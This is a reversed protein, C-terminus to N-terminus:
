AFLGNRFNIIMESQFWCNRDYGYSGSLLLLFHTQSLLVLIPCLLVNSRQLYSIVTSLASIVQTQIEDWSFIQHGGKVGRNRHLQFLVFIFYVSIRFTSIVLMQCSFLTLWKFYVLDNDKIELKRCGPLYGAIVKEWRYKKIIIIVDRTDGDDGYISFLVVKYFTLAPPELTRLVQLFPFSLINWLAVISSKICHRLRSNPNLKYYLFIVTAFVIKQM